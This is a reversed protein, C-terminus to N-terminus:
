YGYPIYGDALLGCIDDVYYSGRFINFVATCRKGQYEAIVHNNDRHSIIKATGYSGISHIVATVENVVENSDKM